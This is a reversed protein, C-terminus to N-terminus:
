VEAWMRLMNHYVGTLSVIGRHGGGAEVALQQIALDMELLLARRADDRVLSQVWFFSAVRVGRTVPEVRHLSSAPYLILGGAPLKVEHLGYTDEVVLEGGDYSEPDALFLTASLDTRIRTAGHSRIANDIHDGFTQGAGYRNFLPPFVTHPLAAATFLTNRALAARVLGGAEVAAESDQPLQENQKALASQRGSTANGDIWEAADIIARCRAVEDATLLDPIQIMM